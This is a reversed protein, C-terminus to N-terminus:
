VSKYASGTFMGRTGGAITIIPFGPIVQLTERDDFIAGIVRGAGFGVCKEFARLTVGVMVRSRVISLAERFDRFTGGVGVRGEHGSEKFAGRALRAEVGGVIGSIAQGDNGVAVLEFGGGNGVGKEFAFGASRVEGLGCIGPLAQGDDVLTNIVRSGGTGRKEQCTGVAVGIESGGRIGPRTKQVNGIALRVFVRRM